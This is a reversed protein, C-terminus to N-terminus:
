KGTDFLQLPYPTSGGRDTHAGNLRPEFDTRISALFIAAPTPSATGSGTMPGKIDIMMGAQSDAVYDLTLKSRSVGAKRAVANMCANEAVKTQATSGNYASSSASEGDGDDDNEDDNLQCAGSDGNKVFYTIGWDGNKVMSLTTRGKSAEYFNSNVKTLPVQQNNIYATGDEVRLNIHGPCSASLDPVGAYATGTIVLVSLALLTKKM